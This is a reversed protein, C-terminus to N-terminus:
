TSLNLDFDISSFLLIQYENPQVHGATNMCANNGIITM